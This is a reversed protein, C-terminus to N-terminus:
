SGIYCDECNNRIVYERNSHCSKYYLETEDIEVKNNKCVIRVTFGMFHIWYSMDDDSVEEFNYGQFSEIGTIFKEKTMEVLQVKLGLYNESLAHSVERIEAETLETPEVELDYSFNGYKEEIIRNALEKAKLKNRAFIQVVEVRGDDFDKGKAIVDYLIERM